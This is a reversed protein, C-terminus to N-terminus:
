AHPLLTLAFAGVTATVFAFWAVLQEARARRANPRRATAPPHISATMNSRVFLGDAHAPPLGGSALAVGALTWGPSDQRSGLL